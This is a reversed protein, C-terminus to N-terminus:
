TGLPPADRAFSKFTVGEKELEERIELYNYVEGNYVILHNGDASFMPQAGAESLDLISLRRHGFGVNFDSSETKQLNGNDYSFTAFGSGDPGRHAISDNYKKLVTFPVSNKKNIICSIGCM